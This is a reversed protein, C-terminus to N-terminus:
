HVKVKKPTPGPRKKSFDNLPKAPDKEPKGTAEEADVPSCEADTIDFFEAGSDQDQSVSATSLPCHGSNRAIKISNVLLCNVAVFHIELSERLEELTLHHSLMLDVCIMAWRAAAQEVTDSTQALHRIGAKSIEINKDKDNKDM